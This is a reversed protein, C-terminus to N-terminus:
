WWLDSVINASDRPSGITPLGMGGSFEAYAKAAKTCNDWATAIGDVEETHDDLTKKSEEIRKNVDAQAETWGEPGSIKLNLKSLIDFQGSFKGTLDFISKSAEDSDKKVIKLTDTTDKLKEELPTGVELAKKEEESLAEWEEAPMRFGEPEIAPKVAKGSIEDFIRFLDNKMDETSARIGLIREDTVKRLKEMSEATGTVIVNLADDSILGLGHLLEAIFINLGGFIKEFNHVTEWFNIELVTVMEGVGAIVVAVIGAIVGTAHKGIDDWKANWISEVLGAVHEMWIPVLEWRDKLGFYAIIAAIGIALLATAWFGLTASAAVGATAGTSMMSAQLATFRAIAISNIFLGVQGLVMLFSGIMFTALLIGAVLQPNEQIWGSVADIIDIIAPLLPLVAEALANGISFKLFEWHISLRTVAQGAEGAGMTIKMFTDLAMKMTQQATRQLQMGFFMFSLLYMRFKPAMTKFANGIEVGSTGAQKAMENLDKQFQRTQATFNVIVQVTEATLVM